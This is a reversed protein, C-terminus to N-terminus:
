ELATQPSEIQLTEILFASGRKYPEITVTQLYNEFGYSTFLRTVIRKAELAYDSETDLTELTDIEIAVADVRIRCRVGKIPLMMQLNEWLSEEVENIVPLLKEDIAIGTTVRSSLCPAAPLDQLDVLGLSRAIDRIGDKTIGADVYPHKVKHEDAAILGPRYDGLDDLNTGSVVSLDTQECVTDYLNTKCFYCRNAPNAVYEPDHIEGADVLHLDWGEQEAYKRVRATAQHPVAPSLAHFMQCEPNTRHAVVALTMSDVGGSVAVAIPGRVALVEILRDLTKKDLSTM